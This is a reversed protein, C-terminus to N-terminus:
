EITGGQLIDYIKPLLEQINGSCFIVMEEPLIAKYDGNMQIFEVRFTQQIEEAETIEKKLDAVVNSYTNVTGENLDLLYNFITTAIDVSTVTCEALCGDETSKISDVNIEVKGKLTQMIYNDSSAERYVEELATDMLAQAEQVTLTDVGQNITWITFFVMGSLVGAVIWVIKKKM